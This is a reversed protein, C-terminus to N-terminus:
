CNLLYYGLTVNKDIIVQRKTFKNFARCGRQTYTTKEKYDYLSIWAANMHKSGSRVGSVQYIYVKRKEYKVKRKNNMPNVPSTPSTINAPNISWSSMSATNVAIGASAATAFLIYTALVFYYKM